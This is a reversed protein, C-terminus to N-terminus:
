FFFVQCFLKFWKIIPAEQNESGIRSGLMDDNWTAYYWPIREGRLSHSELLSKTHVNWTLCELGDNWCWIPFGGGGVVNIFTQAFDLLLGGRSSYVRSQKQKFSTFYSTLSPFSSSSSDLAEACEPKVKVWKSKRGEKRGDMTMM